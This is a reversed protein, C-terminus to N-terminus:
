QGVINTLTYPSRPQRPPHDRCCGSKASVLPAGKKHPRAASPSNIKLIVDKYIILLVESYNRVYRSFSYYDAGECRRIYM